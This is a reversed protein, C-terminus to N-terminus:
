AKHEKLPIVGCFFVSTLKVIAETVNDKHLELFRPDGSKTQMDDSMYMIFDMSLYQRFWSEKQAKTFEAILTNKMETQHSTFLDQLESDEGIFVDRMFHQSIGEATKLIELVMQKVKDPFSLKSFMTENYVEFGEKAIGNLLAKVLTMKNNFLRYFMMKSVGVEKAIEEVSVKKIGYKWFLIKASAFLM